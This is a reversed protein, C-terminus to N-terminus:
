MVYLGLILLVIDSIAEEYAGPNYQECHYKRLGRLMAQGMELSGEIEVTVGMFPLLIDM